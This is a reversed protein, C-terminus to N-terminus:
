GCLDHRDLLDSYLSLYDRGVREISYKRAVRALANRSLSRALGRDLIIRRLAGALAKSDSPPVLLGDVGDTLVDPIGGVNTSVIPLKAAMAELLAVPM